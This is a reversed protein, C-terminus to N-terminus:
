YFSMVKHQWTVSCKSNCQFVYMYMYVYNYSDLLSHRSTIVAGKLYPPIRRKHILVKRTAEVTAGHCMEVFQTLLVFPMLTRSLNLLLLIM